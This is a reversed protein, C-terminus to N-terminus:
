DKRKITVKRGRHAIDMKNVLALMGLVSEPDDYRKINGTFLIDGLAPDEFTVELDYCRALMKMIDELRQQDFLFRGDKWSTYLRTDVMALSTVGSHKDLRAQQGPVIAVQNGDSSFTVGGAVLTTEMHDEDAYDRVNFSTGTVTIEGHPATVVFPSSGVSAVDFFAEGKMAVVRNNETFPVPVRIESESNMYIESGDALKLHYEGGRPIYITHYSVNDETVSTGVDEALREAAVAAYDSDSIDIREGGSTTLIAKAGRQPMQGGTIKAGGEMLTWVAGVALLVAAAVGAIRRLRRRRRRLATQKALQRFSSYAEGIDNQEMFRLREATLRGSAVDDYLKANTASLNRWEDLMARGDVDLTNLSLRALLGAIDKMECPKGM